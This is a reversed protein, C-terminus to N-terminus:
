FLFDVKHSADLLCVQHNERIAAIRNRPLAGMWSKDFATNIIIDGIDINSVM